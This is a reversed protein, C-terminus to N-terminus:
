FEGSNQSVKKARRELSFYGRMDGLNEYLGALTKTIEEREKDDLKLELLKEYAGTANKKKGDNLCSKAKTKYFEKVRISIEKQQVQNSEGIAKKVCMEALDYNGAKIFLETAKMFDNIKGQVTTNIEAANKMAEGANSFMKRQEYLGSLKILVFKRTDYDISNKLCGELYGMKVYDGMQSIKMEIENRKNEKVQM